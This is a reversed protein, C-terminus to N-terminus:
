PNQKTLKKLYQICTGMKQQQIAFTEKHLTQNFTIYYLWGQLAIIIAYYTTIM